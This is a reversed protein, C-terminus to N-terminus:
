AIDETESEINKSQEMRNLLSIVPINIQFVSHKNQLNKLAEMDKNLEEKM